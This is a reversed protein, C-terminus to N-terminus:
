GILLVSSQVVLLAQVGSVVQGRWAHVGWECGVCLYSLPFADGIAAAQTQSVMLFKIWM